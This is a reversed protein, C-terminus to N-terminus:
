STVGVPTPLQIPHSTQASREPPAASTQLSPQESPLKSVAQPPTGTHPFSPRTIHRAKSDPPSPDASLPASQSGSCNRNCSQPLKSPQESQSLLPLSAQPRDTAPCSPNPSSAPPAAPNPCPCGYSLIPVHDYRPFTEEYSIRNRNNRSTYSSRLHFLTGIRPAPSTQHRRGHLLLIRPSSPVSCQHTIDSHGTRITM